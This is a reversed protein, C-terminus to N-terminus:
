NAYIPGLLVSNGCDVAYAVLRSKSLKLISKLDYAILEILVIPLFAEYRNLSSARRGARFGNSDVCILPCFCSKSLIGRFEAVGSFAGFRKGFKTLTQSSDATGILM